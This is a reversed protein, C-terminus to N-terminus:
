GAAQNNSLSIGLPQEPDQVPGDALRLFFRALFGFPGRPVPLLDLLRLPLNALPGGRLVPIGDHGDVVLQGRQVRDSGVRVAQGARGALLDGAAMFSLLLGPVVGALGVRNGCLRLRERWPKFRRGCRHIEPRERVM